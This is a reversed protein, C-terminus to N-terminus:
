QDSNSPLAFGDTFDSVNNALIRIDPKYHTSESTRSEVTSAIHVLIEGERIYNLVSQADGGDRIRRFIRDAVEFPETQMLRFLSQYPNEPQDIKQRKAPPMITDPLTDNYVCGTRRSVCEKCQPRELTCKTVRGRCAMCAGYGVIADFNFRQSNPLRSTDHGSVDAM